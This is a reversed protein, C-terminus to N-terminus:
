TFLHQPSMWEFINSPATQWWFGPAHKLWSYDGLPVDYLLPSGWGKTQFIQTLTSLCGSRTMMHGSGTSIGGFLGRDDVSGETYIPYAPQKGSKYKTYNAVLMSMAIDECNKHQDVHDRVEQPLQFTYLSLYQQHLFAAKTLVFNFKQRWYVLPWTHYVLSTSDKSNNNLPPSALRPYYGVMADPNSKWAQFGMALSNCDVQIDDDVMFVANSSLETIPEFRSNLSDKEKRLILVQARNQSDLDHNHDNYSRIVNTNRSFFSSPEPVAVGQEAWIVFVQSVGAKRGCTDAYHQVARYLRDPRKYTNITVAFFIEGKNPTAKQESDGRQLFLRDYGGLFTNAFIITLVICAILKSKKSLSSWRYQLKILFRPSKHNRRPDHLEEQQSAYKLATYRSV